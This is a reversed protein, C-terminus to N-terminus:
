DPSIKLNNFQVFAWNSMIGALGKHYTADQIHTTIIGNISGIISTNHMQLTLTYWTQTKINTLIGSALIIAGNIKSNKYLYWSGKANLTYIYGNFNQTNKSGSYENFRGILGATENPQTFLISSTITHVPQM